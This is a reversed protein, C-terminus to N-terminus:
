AQDAQPEVIESKGTAHPDSEKQALDAHPYVKESKGTAHDDTLCSLVHAGHAGHDVFSFECGWKEAPVRVPTLVPANFLAYELHLMRQQLEEVAQSHPEVVEYEAMDFFVAQGTDPDPIFAATEGISYFEASRTFPMVQQRLAM